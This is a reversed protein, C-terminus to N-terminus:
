GRDPPPPAVNVGPKGQPGKPSVTLCELFEPDGSETKFGYRCEYTGKRASEWRVQYAGATIEDEDFAEGPAGPSPELAVVPIQDPDIRGQFSWVVSDGPRVADQWDPEVRVTRDEFITVIIKHTRPAPQVESM